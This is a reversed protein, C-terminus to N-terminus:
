KNMLNKIENPSEFKVAEHNKQAKNERTEPQFIDYVSVYVKGKAFSDTRSVLQYYFKTDGGRDVYLKHIAQKGDHQKAAVINGLDIHATEFEVFAGYDTVLIKSFNKAVELGERTYLPKGKTFVPLGKKYLARIYKSLDSPLSNGNFYVALGKAIYEEPKM